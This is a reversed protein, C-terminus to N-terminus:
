VGTVTVFVFVLLFIFQLLMVVELTFKVPFNWTPKSGGNRDVFTRIKQKGSLSVIAYVAMKKSNADRLEKASTMNLELTRYDM